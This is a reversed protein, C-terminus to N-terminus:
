FCFSFTGNGEVSLSGLGVIDMGLLVDFPAGVADFGGGEIANELMYDAAAIVGNGPVHFGVSFAYSFHYSLGGIGLVPVKGIPRLGIERALRTSVM